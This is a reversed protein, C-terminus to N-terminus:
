GDHMVKAFEGHANENSSCAEVAHTLADVGSLTAQKFPLTRMLNADLIAVSPYCAPSSVTIKRHNHEDVMPQHPSVEAGSGATTPITIVPMVFQPPQFAFERISPVSGRSAPGGLVGTAKGVVLASGGGLAIICDAGHDAAQRWSEDIASVKAVHTVDSFVGAPLNAEALVELVQSVIGAQVLGPDTVIWPRTGGLSRIEKPLQKLSGLGHVIKTKMQFTAFGM